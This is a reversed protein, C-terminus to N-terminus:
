AACRRRLEKQLQERWANADIGLVECAAEFDGFPWRTMGTPEGFIWAHADVARTDMANCPVRFLDERAEELMAQVLKQEASQRRPVGWMESPAHEMRDKPTIM